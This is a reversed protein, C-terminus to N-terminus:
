AEHTIANLVKRYNQFEDFKGPPSYSYSTEDGLENIEDNIWKIFDDTHTTTLTNDNKLLWLLSEFRQKTHPWFADHYTTTKILYKLVDANNLDIGFMDAKVKMEYPSESHYIDDVLKYDISINDKYNM